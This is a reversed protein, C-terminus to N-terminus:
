VRAEVRPPRRGAPTVGAQGQRGYSQAPQMATALDGVAQGIAACHFVTLRLKLIQRRVEARDHVSMSPAAREVERVAEAIAPEVALVADARGSELANTLADLATQLRVLPDPNTIV